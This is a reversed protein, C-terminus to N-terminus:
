TKHVNWPQEPLDFLTQTRLELSVSRSGKNHKCETNVLTGNSM